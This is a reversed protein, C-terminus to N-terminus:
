YLFGFLWLPIKNGSGIEIDDAVVYGNEADKIQKFNKNKGGIEILYQNDLLFDGKKPISISHNPTVMSCFLAERITGMEFNECYAFHLNTNGLFIKGPKVFISDGKAKPKIINIVKAKYLYELFRYLGKYNKGMQMKELLKKMNPTYPLSSCVLRVLKKLNIVNQYEIPFISPIDVEIVTNITENLRLLYSKKNEFYFPYYGQKVYERYELRLTFKQLLEFAIDVHNDFIEQLSYKPLTVGQNMEIFERFSLGYVHYIVTRRSLDAKSNDIQLASSGSFIVKLGLIDYIKKLEIEFNNYKHIEDIVLV